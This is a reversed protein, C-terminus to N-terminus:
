IRFRAYIMEPCCYMKIKREWAEPVPFTELSALLPQLEAVIRHFPEFHATNSRRKLSSVTSTRSHNNLPGCNPGPYNQNHFQQPVKFIFATEDPLSNTMKQRRFM